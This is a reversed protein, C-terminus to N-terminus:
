KTRVFDKPEPIVRLINFTNSAIVTAVGDKDVFTQTFWEAILPRPKCKAVVFGDDRVIANTDWDFHLGSYNVLLKSKWGPEYANARSIDM